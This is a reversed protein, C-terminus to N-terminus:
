GHQVGKEAPRDNQRWRKETMAFRNLTEHRNREKAFRTEVGSHDFGLKELVRSSRQNDLRTLGVVSQLGLDSFAFELVARVAEATYGGGWWDEDLYYGIEAQRDEAEADIKLEISGIFKGDEAKGPEKPCVTFVVGQGSEAREASAAIWAEAISIDDYPYPISATWQVINWNQLIEYIAPADDQQPPRLTLRAATLRPVAIRSPPWAPSM